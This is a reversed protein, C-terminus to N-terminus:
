TCTTTSAAPRERARGVPRGRQEQGLEFTCQTSRRAGRHHLAALHREHRGRVLLSAANRFFLTAYNCTTQAPTLFALTPKLSSSLRTLQSSARAARVPDQLVRGADDFVDALDSNMQKTKPLVDTGAEFADALIPASHPLTAVGPRLEHFFAANNRLFPGSSRSTASRSSGREAPGGLDDGPPVPRAVSPLATFTTDLNVFLSAQEEAM